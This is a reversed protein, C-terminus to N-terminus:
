KGEPVSFGTKEGVPRRRGHAAPLPRPVRGAGVARAIDTRSGQSAQPAM